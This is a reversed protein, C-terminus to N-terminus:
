LEDRLIRIYGLNQEEEAHRADNETPIDNAQDEGTRSTSKLSFLGMGIVGRSADQITAIM